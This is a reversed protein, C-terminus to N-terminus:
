ITPVDIVLEPFEDDSNDFMPSVKGSPLVSKTVSDPSKPLTPVDEARTSCNQDQKQSKEMRRPSKETRRPSKEQKKPSKETRKRKASKENKGPKVAADEVITLRGDSAGSDSDERDVAAAKYTARSKLKTALSPKCKLKEPSGSSEVPLSSKEVPDVISGDKTEQDVPAAEEEDEDFEAEPHAACILSGDIAYTIGKTFHDQCFANPCQNCQYISAKGCITCHHWPCLWPGLFFKLSYNNNIVM